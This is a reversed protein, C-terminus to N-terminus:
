EDSGGRVLEIYKEALISKCVATYGGLDLQYAIPQQLKNLITETVLAVSHELSVLGYEPHKNQAAPMERLMSAERTDYFLCWDDQRIIRVLDGPNYKRPIRM